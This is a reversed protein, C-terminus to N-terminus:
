FACRSKCVLWRGHRVVVHLEKAISGHRTVRFDEKFVVWGSKTVIWFLIQKLNVIERQGVGFDHLFDVSKDFYTAQDVFRLISLLM